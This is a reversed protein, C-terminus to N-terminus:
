TIGASENTEADEAFEPPLIKLTVQRDLKTDKAPFVKDMGGAGIKSVIRYHSINTKASLEKNM